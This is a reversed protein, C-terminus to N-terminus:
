LAAVFAEVLAEFRPAVARGVQVVEDHALPAPALGAAPNTIVSVGACRLGVARAVLVEPVTSMGVADAGLRELMRVEAPTEYAPGTLAAYVGDHLPVGAAGGVEHLLRRLAPDWAESLDPFREDGPVVPGILPNRGMLNLHDAIVMLDGPRFTRRIGGAANSAFLVSAGLAHAVRAPLAATAVDHGEYVHFRGAFCAVRRGSVSGVLLEGAHGTVTPPPFGPLDRYPIRVADRVRAAFGGLGSGLIIAAVPPADGAARRVAAAAADAAARADGATM